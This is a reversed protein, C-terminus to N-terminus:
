QKYINITSQAVTQKNAQKNTQKNQEKINKQFGLTWHCVPNGGMSSATVLLCRLASLPRRLNLTINSALM